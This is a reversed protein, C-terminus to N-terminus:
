PMNAMNVLAIGTLSGQNKLMGTAGSGDLAAKWVTGTDLSTYYM